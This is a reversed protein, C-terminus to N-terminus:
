MKRQAEEWLLLVGLEVELGECPAPHVHRACVAISKLEPPLLAWVTKGAVFVTTGLPISLTDGTSDDYRCVQLLGCPVHLAYLTMVRPLSLNYLAADITGTTSARPM